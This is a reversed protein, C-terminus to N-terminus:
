GDRKPLNDEIFDMAMTLTTVIKILVSKNGEYFDNAIEFSDNGCDYLAITDVCEGDIELRVMLDDRTHEHECIQMCIDCVATYKNEAHSIDYGFPFAFGMLGGKGGQYIKYKEDM